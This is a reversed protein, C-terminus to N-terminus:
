AVPPHAVVARLARLLEVPLALTVLVVDSPTDELAIQLIVSYVDETISM